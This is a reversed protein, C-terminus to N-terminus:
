SARLTRALRQAGAVPDFGGGQGTTARTAPAPKHPLKARRLRPAHKRGHDRVRGDAIMQRLQRTSYGSVLASESLMLTEDGAAALAADLDAACRELAVAQPEAAYARLTAAQARWAAVLAPVGSPTM